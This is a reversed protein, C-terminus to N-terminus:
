TALPTKFLTTIITQLKSETEPPPDGYVILYAPRIADNDYVVTEEYNLDIGPEGIVSHHGCPPETLSTANKQRRHPKGVVVRNVLMVRLNSLQEINATYDDAKSSCTTTYIGRGFRKFRHKSGCKKVNFSMRIICCLNCEPLSCLRTSRSDEGLLCCRTTGHFLLQENAPNKVRGALGPAAAVRARYHHFPRLIHDPITIRFISYIHPRKKKPHKWGKKFTRSIETYKSDAKALPVLRKSPGCSQNQPHKFSFEDIIGSM